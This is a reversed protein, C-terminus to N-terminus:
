RAEIRADPVFAALAFWFQADHRLPRLREGRLEGSTARGTIDWISDTQRDRYRGDGGPAFELTRGGVRRDFAAATGVDRSDQISSADLASVVGKKYLVVAPTGGVEENAVREEELRSFPVVVTEDDVFM